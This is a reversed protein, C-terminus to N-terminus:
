FGWLLSYIGTSAPLSKVLTFGTWFLVFQTRFITCRIEAFSSVLFKCGARTDGGAGPCSLFHRGAKTKQLLSHHILAALTRLESVNAGVPLVFFTCRPTGRPLLEIVCELRGRPASCYGSVSPLLRFLNWVFFTAFFLRSAQLTIHSKKCVPCKVLPGSEERHDPPPLAGNPPGLKDALADDLRTAEAEVVRFVERYQELIRKIVSDMSERGAVIEKLGAELERRMHPKSVSINFSMADYGKVLALGLTTPELVGNASKRVFERDEITKIHQAITADTGIENREMLQILSAEDLLAPAETEGERFDISTPVFTQGVQYLPINSGGWSDYPYIDLYGRDTIMRGKTHFTETAVKIEINTEQALADNSCCALFHRTVLEYVKGEDGHLGGGPPAKTPHIPPHAEDTKSGNRPNVGGNALLSTAFAGWRPDRTQEQVLAVLDM